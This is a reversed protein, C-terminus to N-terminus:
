GDGFFSGWSEGNIVIDFEVGAEFPPELPIGIRQTRSSQVCSRTIVRLEGGIRVAVQTEKLVQIAVDNGIRLVSFSNFAYCPSEFGITVDLLYQAPVTDLIRVEVTEITALSLSILENAPPTRFPLPTPPTPTATPMFVTRTDAFNDGAVRDLVEIIKSNRGLYVTILEGRLYFHPPAPWPAPILTDEFNIMTAGDPSIRESAIKAETTSNFDVLLVQEGLINAFRTEKLFIPGTSPERLNLDGFALELETVVSLTDEHLPHPGLSPSATPQPTATLDEGNDITVVATERVEPSADSSSVASNSGCAIVVAAVIAFYGLLYKSNNVSFTSM